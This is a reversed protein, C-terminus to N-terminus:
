LLVYKGEDDGGEASPNGGIDVDCDKGRTIYQIVFLCFMLKVDM